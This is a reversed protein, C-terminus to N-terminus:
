GLIKRPQHTLGFKPCIKVGSKKDFNKAWSKQFDDVWSKRFNITPYKKDFKPSFNGHNESIM